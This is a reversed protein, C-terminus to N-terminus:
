LSKNLPPDSDNLSQLDAICQEAGPQEIASCWEAATVSCTAGVVSAGCQAGGCRQLARFRVSAYEPAPVSSRQAVICHKSQVDAGRREAGFQVTIQVSGEVATVSRAAGLLVASASCLAGGCQLASFVSCQRQGASCGATCGM